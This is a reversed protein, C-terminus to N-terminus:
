KILLSAVHNAMVEHAARVAASYHEAMPLLCGCHIGWVGGVQTLTLTPTPTPTPDPNPDSIRPDVEADVDGPAGVALM